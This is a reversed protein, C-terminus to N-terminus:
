ELAVEEVVPREKELKDEEDDVGIKEELACDFLLLFLLDSLNLHFLLFLTLVDEGRAMSSSSPCIPLTSTLLCSAVIEFVGVEHTLLV